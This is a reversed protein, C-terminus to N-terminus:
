TPRLLKEVKVGVSRWASPKEVAEHEVLRQGHQELLASAREVGRGKEPGGEVGDLCGTQNGVKSEQKKVRRRVM